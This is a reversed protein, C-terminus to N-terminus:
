HHKAGLENYKIVEAVRPDRGRFQRFVEAPPVSGGLAMFTNRFRRGLRQVEAENTTGAEVFAMFGDASMVDSWLYSRAPLACVCAPLPLPLTPPPITHTTHLLALTNGVCSVRLM